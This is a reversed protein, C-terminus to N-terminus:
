KSFAPPFLRLQERESLNAADTEASAAAAACSFSSGCAATTEADTVTALAAAAACFFFSGSVATEELHIEM